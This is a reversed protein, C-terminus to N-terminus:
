YPKPMISAVYINRYWNLRGRNMAKAHGDCHTMNSTLTHRYRPFLGCGPWSGGGVSAPFDCDFQLADQTDVSGPPNGVTQTWYVEDPPFAGYGWPADNRGLEAFIVTDAPNDIGALKTTIITQPQTDWPVMGDPAIGWHIGIPSNQNPDPFSPCSFVGGVGWTFNGSRDGNKIYPWVMDNWVHLTNPDNFDEQYQMMPFTEDYDQLYMMLATGLQKENSICTIARAKERAQAFVPFLIAALIAIIAIVVLLEILTFGRNRQM